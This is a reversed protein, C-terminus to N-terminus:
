CLVLNQDASQEEEPPGLDAYAYDQHWGFCESSSAPKVTLDSSWILLSSCGLAARM